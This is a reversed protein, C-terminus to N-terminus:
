TWSMRLVPLWGYELVYECVPNYAVMRWLISLRVLELEGGLQNLDLDHRDPPLAKSKQLM